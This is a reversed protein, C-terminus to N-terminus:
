VTTERSPHPGAHESPHGASPRLAPAVILLCAVPSLVCRVRLDCTAGRVVGGKPLSRDSPSMVNVLTTPKFSRESHGNRSSTGQSRKSQTRDPTSKADGHNVQSCAAPHAHGCRPNCVVVTRRVSFARSEFDELHLDTEPAQAANKNITFSPIRRSDNPGGGLPTPHTTVGTGDGFGEGDQSDDGDQSGNPDFDSGDHRRFIDVLHQKDGLGPAPAFLERAAQAAAAGNGQWFEVSDPTTSLQRAHSDGAGAGADQKTESADLTRGSAGISGIRSVSSAGSDDRIPRTPM